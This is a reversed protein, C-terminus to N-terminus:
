AQSFLLCEEVLKIVSNEQKKKNNWWKVGDSRQHEDSPWCCLCGVRLINQESGTVMFFPDVLSKIEGTTRHLFCMM